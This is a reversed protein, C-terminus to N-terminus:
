AGRVKGQGGVTGEWLILNYFNVMTKEHESQHYQEQLESCESDEASAEPEQEKRTLSLILDRKKKEMIRIRGQREIEGVMEVLM